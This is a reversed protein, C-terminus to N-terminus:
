RPNQRIGSRDIEEQPIPLAFRPDNAPLRIETGNITRILSINGGLVNLRKIDGWRIGRLVLEKRREELIKDILTAGSLNAIPTFKGSKFRKVLLTNLSNVANQSQGLRAECEAKNLWLEDVALGGFANALYSYQGRFAMFGSRAFFFLSRRLDDQEYKAYLEPSVASGATFFYYTRLLLESYFIVEDLNGVFPRAPSPNIQNYDLLTDYLGLARNAAELSKEFDGMYLYVRSLMAWVAPKSPRTNVSITTQVLPEAIELDLIIQEFTQKLTSRPLAVAIDSDLRLVIGLENGATAPDYGMCFSRALSFFAYARYFHAAGKLNRWEQSSKESNDFQELEGLVVNSYFVQDYPRSWDTNLANNIPENSWTYIRRSDEDLIALRSDLILVDDSSADLQSPEANMVQLNNDLLAWLESISTPVILAKDPKEDLIGSCSAGLFLLGALLLAQNLHQYKKM